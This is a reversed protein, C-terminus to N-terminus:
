PKRASLNTSNTVPRAAADKQYSAVLTIMGMLRTQSPDPKLDLDRVRIMSDGSGIAVLFNIMAEDDTSVNLVYTQEEFFANTNVQNGTRAGPRYSTITMKHQRATSQIVNLLQTAQEGPLVRSGAKELDELKTKYEGMRAIEDEYGKLETEKLKAKAKAKRWDGFHPIVLWMNLVVFLIAFVIVVLRREQPQLNMKDLLGTM